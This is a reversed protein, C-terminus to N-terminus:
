LLLPTSRGNGLDVLVIDLSGTGNTLVGSTVTITPPTANSTVTYYGISTSGNTASTVAANSTYGDFPVLLALGTTTVAFSNVLVSPVKWDIMLMFTDGVDANNLIVTPSALAAGLTFDTATGTRVGAVTAPAIPGPSSAANLITGIVTPNTTYMSWHAYGARDPSIHPRFLEVDYSVWLEGLTTGAPIPTLTAINFLGLDTTTLPLATSGSRIYYNNSANNACEVGYILSKDPRASVAFDSNEMQPKSTYPPSSANYEMAMIVSGMAASSNYPSTTSVFEFVLGHMHYEEFNGAIQALFPFTNSLGPNISFTTNSFTSSGGAFVDQLYERHRLRVSTKSDAFSAYESAGSYRVLSNSGVDSLNTAYDGSGILRSFRAALARGATAGMSTSGGLAKDLLGGAAGGAMGLAQRVASNAAKVLTAKPMGM